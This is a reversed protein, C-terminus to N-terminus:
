LISKEKLNVYDLLSNSLKSIDTYNSPIDFAASPADQSLDSVEIIFYGGDENIIEIREIKNGLIYYKVTQGSECKYEEVVYETSDITVFGINVLTAKDATTTVPIIIDDFVEKKFKYEDANGGDAYYKYEPLVFYIDSGKLIINVKKPGSNSINIITSLAYKSGDAYLTFEVPSGNNRKAVATMTYKGSNLIEKDPKSTATGANTASGTGTNSGTGTGGESGDSPPSSNLGSGSPKKTDKSSEETILGESMKMTVDSTIKNANSDLNVGLEEILRIEDETLAKGKGKATTKKASGATKKETAATNEAKINNEKKTTKEAKTQDKGLLRDLVGAHTTEPASPSTESVAKTNSTNEATVNKKVRYITCFLLLVAILPILLLSRKM